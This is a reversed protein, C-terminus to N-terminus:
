WKCTMREHSAWVLHEEYTQSMQQLMKFFDLYRQDEMPELIKKFKDVNHDRTSTNDWNMYSLVTERIDPVNLFSFSDSPKSPFTAPSFGLTHVTQSVTSISVGDGCLIAVHATTSPKLQLVKVLAEELGLSFDADPVEGMNIFTPKVGVVTSASSANRIVSTQFNEAGKSFESIDAPASTGISSCNRVRLNLQHFTFLTNKALCDFRNNGKLFEERLYNQTQTQEAPLHPKDPDESNDLLSLTSLAIWTQSSHTELIKLLDALQTPDENLIRELDIQFLPLEDIFVKIPQSQTQIFEKILKHRDDEDHTNGGNLKRLEGLTVVKVSTGEFKMRVAEDLVYEAQETSANYMNTASIFFVKYYSDKAAELAASVLLSTKGTGYDGCLLLNKDKMTLLNIQDQTWFIISSTHGLPKRKLDSFAVTAARSLFGQNEGGVGAIEGPNRKGVLRTHTEMDEKEFDLLQSNFSVYQSGICIALLRKYEKETAPNAALGLDEFWGESKLEEATLIHKVTDEDLGLDRFQQRSAIEPFCVLNIKKWSSSLQIAPAM